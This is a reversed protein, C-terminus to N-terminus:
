KSEIVMTNTVRNAFAGLTGGVAVKLIDAIVTDRTIVYAVVLASTFILMSLAYDFRKDM